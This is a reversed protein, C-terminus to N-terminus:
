PEAFALIIATFLLLRSLLVLWKKLQSSKRTQMKIKELFAVNTFITKQFKRLKFLHIIIPILLAFLAYLVSPHKFLM